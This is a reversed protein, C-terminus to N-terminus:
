RVYAASFYIRITRMLIIADLLPGVNRVYYLDYALKKKTEPVNAAYGFCVQSWGSLGPRVGHRIDYGPILRRYIDVLHPQEPRPGILTMDGILVNWLQPLEDVHFRRLFRGLPTIRPDNKLTATSYTWNSPLMTRLKYMKFARGNLGVRKQVFLIPCGMCTIISFSAMLLVLVVAPAALLVMVVDMARKIAPYIEFGAYHSRAHHIFAAFM